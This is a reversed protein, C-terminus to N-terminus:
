KSDNGGNKNGFYTNEIEQLTKNRTEPLYIVLIMTGSLCLVGYILFVGHEKFTEFMEPGSKVVAFLFAFYFCTVLASGLARHRLPFLEGTLTWALPNLGITVFIVYLAFLSLPIVSLSKLQANSLSLYLYSSLGLLSTSTGIGSFITLSRRSYKKVVFCAIISAVIRTLDVVVTALYENIGDGLSKKLIGITYFAVANTGSLQLTAFYVLLIMLPVVFSKDKLKALFNNSTSSSDADKTSDNIQQGQVLEHFEKKQEEDFGRFWHFAMEAEDIKNHRLLWSPSEPAFTALIGCAVPLICFFAAISQWNFYIGLVHPILIGISLAAGIMTLFSGRYSPESIESIYIPATPGLLGISFGTLFRGTLLLPLNATFTFFAWGVVFSVNLLYFTIKCGFKGMLIGSLLCGAAM